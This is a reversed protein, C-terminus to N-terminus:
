QPEWGNVGGALLDFLPWVSCYDDGPGFQDFGTRVISGDENKHFASVGPQVNGDDDLFGMDKTFTKESDTYTPYNWGREAVHAQRVSPEDPSVLVFACRRSLHPYMAVLGDAWLTCYNCSKGMNHVLLLETKDGFMESLKVDGADGVFTYNMVPEPAANKRAEALKQKLEYVQKSLAVVTADM